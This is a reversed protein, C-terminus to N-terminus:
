GFYDAGTRFAKINLDKAKAPVTNLIAKEWCETEIPLLRSLVGLLVTNSVKIESLKKAESIADIIISYKLHNKIKIDINDRYSFEKLNASSPHIEYNNIIMVGNEQLRELNRLGELKELAVIFDAKNVTPSFVKRGLRVSGEVSGGRQSMGHVESVKVDFGSYIASHALITTALIIGQGGVGAFLVSITKGSKLCCGTNKIIKEAIYNYYNNNNDFKVM